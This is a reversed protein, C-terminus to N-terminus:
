SLGRVSPAQAVMSLAGVPCASVCIGCGNCSQDAIEPLVRGGPLPRFAIARVLCPDGCLRCTVGQISICSAGLRALVPLRDLGDAAARDIARPACAADCAGCFTCGGQAFDVVPLGDAGKALCHELCSSLCAGCGDCVEAFRAVSWPPRPGSPARAETRRTLLTRRSLLGSM